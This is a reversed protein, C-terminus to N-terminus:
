TAEHVGDQEGPQQGLTTLANVRRPQERLRYGAGRVTELQEIGFPRDIKRRLYGVYQDIVNSSGEYTIDWLHDLIHSRELVVGPNHLFLQLLAFEKASLTLEAEGRWARKTAPDLRLDAVRLETPREVAGRRTLARVRANLEELSFPKVLYDDAGADLAAVRDAVGDRGSVVLIPVWCQQARLRQCVQVGSFGPLSLDLVVADYQSATAQRLAEPGTTAVEVTYQMERLSEALLAAM